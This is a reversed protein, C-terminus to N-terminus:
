PGAPVYIKRRMAAKFASMKAAVPEKGVRELDDRITNHVAISCYKCEGQVKRRMEVERELEDHRRAIESLRRLDARMHKRAEQEKLLQLTINDKEVKHQSKLAAIESEVRINLVDMNKIAEDKQRQLDSNVNQAADGTKLKANVQELEASMKSMAAQCAIKEMQLQRNEAM